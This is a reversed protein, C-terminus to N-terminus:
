QNLLKVLIANVQGMDATGKSMKKVEGAFLGILAKKGKKYETVKDPMRDIVEKVWQEITAAGGEQLLNLEAALHLPDTGPVEAYAALLKGSANNFSLKGESVLSIVMAVHEPLLPFLSIDMERQQCWSRVPGTLWNASAKPDAGCALMELFFAYERKDRCVQAADYASLGYQSRFRKEEEQPLPPMGSSIGELWDESLHVPPLDPEPFYRYDDAEEKLRLSFTTGKEADFSRTEQVITEGSAALNVLRAYEFEIAKKVNRISNLNKVEVRTGLEGSGTPRISINADCRMSGEEMNGDCVGLWRVLRRLGTLFEYADEASHIVPQTVLEILAVGARNLDIYSQDDELDHISKGADEELHMHHIDIAKEKETGQNILFYGGTCVPLANQSIQYGKPLDPYFYNKRVFFNDRSIHAHLAWGLRVAMEVAKKNLRPLTGPHALSIASVQSNPEAGFLNSDACFLKTRTDLQIHVELGVVLQYKGSLPVLCFYPFINGPSLLDARHTVDCFSAFIFFPGIM